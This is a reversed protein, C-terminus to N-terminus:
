TLREDEAEQDRSSQHQAAREDRKGEEYATFIAVSLRPRLEDLLSEILEILLTLNM